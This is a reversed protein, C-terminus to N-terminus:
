EAATVTDLGNIHGVFYDWWSVAINGDWRGMPTALPVM